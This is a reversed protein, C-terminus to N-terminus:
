LVTGSVNVQMALRYPIVHSTPTADKFNAGAGGNCKSYASADSCVVWGAANASSTGVSTNDTPTVPGFFAGLLALSHQWFTM